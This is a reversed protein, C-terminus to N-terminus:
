RQGFPRPPVSQLYAFLAHKETDDMNRLLEVAMLPDLAKGNKRTGTQILHEFDDYTWGALGSADPTLNLPVALKSPAGPIPGGSFHEGHCGSCLRAVFRGYEKTPAPPPASEIHQHDIRRAM